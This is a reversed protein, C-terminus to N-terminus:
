LDLAVQGLFLIFSVSRFSQPNVAYKRLLRQLTSRQKGAAKAAHTINGRHAALLKTLYNLEFNHIVNTKAQHLLTNEQLPRPSRQPLDMDEAQLTAVTTLVLAHLIVGELERVNGPWEYAMLKRLAESSIVRRETNREKAYQTLFYNALHVIDEVRERLPPII